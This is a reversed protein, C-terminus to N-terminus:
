RSLSTLFFFISVGSCVNLRFNGSSVKLARRCKPIQGSHNAVHQLIVTHKLAYQATPREMLTYIMGFIMWSNAFQHTANGSSGSPSSSFIALSRTNLGRAKENKDWPVACSVSPWFPNTM